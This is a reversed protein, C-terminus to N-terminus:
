LFQKLLASLGGSSSAGGAGAGAAAQHQSILKIITMAASKIAEEKEAPSTAGSKDFLKAANSMALAILASAGGGAVDGSSHLAQAAAAAGMRDPSLTSTNNNSYAEAHAHQVAAEDVHNSAGSAQHAQVASMAQAFLASGQGSSASAQSVASDHDVGGVHQAQSAAYAGYAQKGISLLQDM